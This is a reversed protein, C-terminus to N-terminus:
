KRRVSACRRRRGRSAQRSRTPSVACAGSRITRGGPAARVRRAHRLRDRVRCRSPAIARVTRSVLDVDHHLKASEPREVGDARRIFCKEACLKAVRVFVDAGPRNAQQGVSPRQVGHHALPRASPFIRFEPCSPLDSISCLRTVEAAVNASNTRRAFVSVDPRTRSAKAEVSCRRGTDCRGSRAAANSARLSSASSWLRGNSIQYPNIGTASASGAASALRAAFHSSGSVRLNMARRSASSM